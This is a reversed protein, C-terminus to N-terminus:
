MWEGHVSTLATRGEERYDKWAANQKATTGRKDRGAKQKSYLVEEVEHLAERRAKVIAKLETISMKAFNTQM